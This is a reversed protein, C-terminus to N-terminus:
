RDGYTKRFKPLGFFVRDRSRPNFTCTGTYAYKAEFEEPTIKSVRDVSHIDKCLTCDIPPRVFDLLPDPVELACRVQSFSM